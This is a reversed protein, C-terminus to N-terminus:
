IHILSLSQVVGQGLEPQSSGANLYNKTSLNIM